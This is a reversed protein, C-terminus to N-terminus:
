CPYATLGFFMPARALSPKELFRGDTHHAIHTFFGVIEGESAPTDPYIARITTLAM